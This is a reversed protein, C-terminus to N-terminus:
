AAQRTHSPLRTNAARLSFIVVRQAEPAMEWTRVQELLAQNKAQHRLRQMKLLIGVPNSDKKSDSPTDLSQRAGAKWMLIDEALSQHHLVLSIRKNIYLCVCVCVCM